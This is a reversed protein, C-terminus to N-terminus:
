MRHRDDGYTWPDSCLRRDVPWDCRLCRIPLNADTTRESSRARRRPGVARDAHSTRVPAFGRLEPARVLMTRTHGHSRNPSGSGPSGGPDPRRGFRSSGSRGRSRERIRQVLGPAASPTPQGRTSVQSSPERSLIIPAGPIDFQRHPTRGHGPVRVASDTRAESLAMIVDVM